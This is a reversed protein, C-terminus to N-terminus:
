SVFRVEVHQGFAAAIRRLMALSHGRYNSNEMRCVVSATTGITAALERQSMKAATRFKRIQRAVEANSTKSKNKKMKALGKHENQDGVSRTYARIVTRGTGRTRLKAFLIFYFFVPGGCTIKV